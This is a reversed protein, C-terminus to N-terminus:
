QNNKDSQSLAVGGALGLSLGAKGVNKPDFKAFRSRVQEPTFPIYVVHKPGGMKGGMDKIGDYGKSKLFETVWDPVVTWAHTNGTKLDDRYRELWVMPDTTTKDWQDVGGQTYQPKPAKQAAVELEPLMAQLDDVKSTDLPNQIKLRAPLVGPFSMDPSDFQVGKIGAMELVKTFKEEEGFIQGSELWLEKAAAIPDGRNTKLLYRWHDLGAGGPQGIAQVINGDDDYSINELKAALDRKQTYSLSKGIQDLRKGDLTFQDNWDSLENRASNDLKGTAYSSALTTDDTFFPMPGSTAREPKIGEALRDLRNAGTYADITYGQEAARAARAAASMDLADDAKALKGVLPAMALAGGGALLHPDVISPLDGLAGAIAQGMRGTNGANRTRERWEDGTPFFALPHTVLGALGLAKMGAGTLPDTNPDVAQNLMALSADRQAGSRRGYRAFAGAIEDWAGQLASPEEYARLASRADRKDAM